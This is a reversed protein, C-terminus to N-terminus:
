KNERVWRELTDKATNLRTAAEKHLPNKDPHFKLMLARYIPKYLSSGKALLDEITFDPSMMLLAHEPYEPDLQENLIRDLASLNQLTSPDIPNYQKPNISENDTTYGHSRLFYLFDEYAKIYAEEDNNRSAIGIKLLYFALLCVYYTAVCTSYLKHTSHATNVSHVIVNRTVDWNRYGVNSWCNKLGNFASDVVHYTRWAQFGINLPPISALGFMCGWALFKKWSENLNTLLVCFESWEAAVSTGLLVLFTTVQAQDSTVWGRTLAMASLWYLSATSFLLIQTNSLSLPDRQFASAGILALSSMGQNDLLHPNAGEKVLLEVIALNETASAYHLPTAGTSNQKNLNNGSLILKHLIQPSQSIVAFHLLSDGERNIAHINSGLEVLKEFAISHGGLIAYHIPALGQTDLDNVSKPSLKSLTDIDGNYAARNIPTLNQVDVTSIKKIKSKLQNVHSASGKCKIQEQIEKFEKGLKQGLIHALMSDNKMLVAHDIATLHQFDKMEPDAGEALLILVIDQRNERVAFHLPLEGNPLPSNVPLNTSILKTALNLNGQKISNQFDLLSNQPPITSLSPSGQLYIPLFFNM